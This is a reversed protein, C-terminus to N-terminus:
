NDLFFPNGDTDAHISITMSGPSFFPTGDLDLALNSTNLTDTTFQRAAALAAATKQSADASAASEAEGRAQQLASTGAAVRVADDAVRSVNQDARIRPLQYPGVFEMTSM